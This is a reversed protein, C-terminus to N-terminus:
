RKVVVMRRAPKVAVDRADHKPRPAVVEEEDETVAEWPRPALAAAVLRAVPDGEGNWQWRTAWAGHGGGGVNRWQPAPGSLGFGSFQGLWWGETSTRGPGRHAGENLAQLVERRRISDPQHGRLLDQHLAFAARRIADHYDSLRLLSHYASQAAKPAEHIADVNSWAIDKLLPAFPAAEDLVQILGDLLQQAIDPSANLMRITVVGVARDVAADLLDADAKREKTTAVADKVPRSPHEIAEGKVLAEIVRFEAADSEGKLHEHDAWAAASARSLVGVQDIAKVVVEPLAIAGLHHAALVPALYGGEDENLPNATM